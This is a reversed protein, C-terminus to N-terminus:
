PPAIRRNGGTEMSGRWDNGWGQSLTAHDLLEAGSEAIVGVIEQELRNVLAIQDVVHAPLVRADVPLQQPQIPVAPHHHEGAGAAVRQVIQQVRRRFNARHVDIGAM